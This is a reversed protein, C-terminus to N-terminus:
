DFRLFGIPERGPRMIVEGDPTLLGTDIWAPEPAPVLLEYFSSYSGESSFDEGDESPNDELPRCGGVWQGPARRGALTLGGMSPPTNPSREQLTSRTLRVFRYKM